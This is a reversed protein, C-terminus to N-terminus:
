NRIVIKSTQVSETNLKQGLVKRSCRWSVDLLKVQDAVAIIGALEGGTGVYVATKGEKELRAGADEEERAEHHRTRHPLQDLVGLGDRLAVEVPRQDMLAPKFVATRACDDAAAKLAEPGDIYIVDKVQGDKGVLVRVLVTGEIGAAQAVAPDPQRRIHRVQERRFQRAPHALARAHGAGHRQALHVGVSGALVEGLKSAYDDAKFEIEKQMTQAQRHYMFYLFGGEILFLIAFMGVALDVSLSRHQGWLKYRQKNTMLDIKYASTEPYISEDILRSTNAEMFRPWLAM